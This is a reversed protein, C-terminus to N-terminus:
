INVKLLMINCKGIKHYHEVEIFHPLQGLLKKTPSLIIFQKCLMGLNYLVTSLMSDECLHIAYSCIILDFPESLRGQAIDKFSYNYCFLGTEKQYKHYLYPDSGVVDNSTPLLKTVEGNGCSLDLVKRNELNVIGKLHDIAREIDFLHPNVYDETEYFKAVGM